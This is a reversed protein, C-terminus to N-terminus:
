IYSAASAGGPIPTNWAPRGDSHITVYNWDYFSSYFDHKESIDSTGTNVAWGIM